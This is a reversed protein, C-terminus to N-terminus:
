KWRAEYFHAMEDSTPLWDLDSTYGYYRVYDFLPVVYAQDAIRELAKKYLVKRAAPDATTDATQLWGKVQEDRSYDDPRFTFFWSASASIDGVAQSAWTLHAMPMIGNQYHPLWAAYQSFDLSATIGVARLYGIVAEAIQRDRYAYIKTSFGNPFGAEALLAKARAPDYAYRTMNATIDATCGFQTPHCPGVSPLAQTSVLNKTIANVDIAHNIARRVRVDKFHDTSSRGTADLSLFSFRQTGGERVTLHPLADIQKVSDRPVSWIWDVGGSLLEAVQSEINPISRYVLKTITAKRKPGGEFYDTNKTMEVSKGPVFKAVKYPGTCVPVVAGWDRRAAGGSATVTPANDYHGAPYIPSVGSLFDLIAPTPRKLTFRVKNPALEEVTKIWDVVFQARVGNKPDSAHTFMYVVDKASFDKGNHFKVGTRLTFDITLDNVWEYGTALLPVYENTRYDRYMLTDCINAAIIVAERANQYYNDISDLEIQSAWVLTDNAKGALAQGSLAACLGMGLTAVRFMSM